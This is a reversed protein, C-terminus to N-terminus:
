RLLKVRAQYLSSLTIPVLREDTSDLGAPKECCIATSVPPALAAFANTMRLLLRVYKPAPTCDM